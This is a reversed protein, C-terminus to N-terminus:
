LNQFSKGAKDRMNSSVKSRTKPQQQQEKQKIRKGDKNKLDRFAISIKKRAIEEDVPTFLGNDLEKLFRGGGSNIENVVEWAIESKNQHPACLYRDLNKELLFRMAINGPHKMVNRGRGFLCDEHRPCEVYQSRFLNVARMGIVTQAGNSKVSNKTTNVHNRTTESGDHDMAEVDLSGVSSDINHESSGALKQLHDHHYKEIITEKERQMRIWKTHYTINDKRLTTNFDLAMPLRNAPMGFTALSYRCEMNSGFHIRVRKRHEKGMLLVITSKIIKYFPTDPLCLHIAIYRSPMCQLFKRSDELKSFSGEIGTYLNSSHLFAVQVVGNTEESLKQMFYLFVQRQHKRSVTKPCMDRLYVFIRRGSSDREPSVQIPGMFLQERAEIDLDEIFIPRFLVDSTEFLGHILDLYRMLRLAAKKPDFDEAFLFGRRFNVDSIMTSNKSRAERYASCLSSPSSLSSASASSSHDNLLLTNADINRKCGFSSTVVGENSRHPNQEIANTVSENTSHVSNGFDQDPHELDYYHKDLEKQMSSLCEKLVDDTYINTSSVGHVEESVRERDTVSLQNLEGVLLRDVEDPDVAM